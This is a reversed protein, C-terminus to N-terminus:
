IDMHDPRSGQVRARGVRRRAVRWGGVTRVLSDDYHGIVELWRDPDDRVVNLVAHVYTRSTAEDGQVDISFNSLRHWTSGMSAHSRTMYDTIEDASHFHGIGRGYNADVDETWISRFLEWDRRDIGTAYRVLVETIEARDRLVDNM